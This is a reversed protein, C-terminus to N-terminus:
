KKRTTSKKKYKKKRTKHSKRKKGALSLLKDYLNEGIVAPEELLDKFPSKTKSDVMNALIILGAPVALNQAFGAGGGVQSSLPFDNQLLESNVNWGLATVKGDTKNFIMDNCDM